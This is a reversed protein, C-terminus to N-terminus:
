QHRWGGPGPNLLRGGCSVEVGGPTVEGIVTFGPLEEAATCVIEYDDGGTALALRATAEDAQSALWGQAEASLPMLDLDISLGVGSAHAIHRADAVLGDSVDAAASADALLTEALNLRPTPLRYRELLWGTADALRGLAVQLGLYGDGITGSVQLLDGVRAGARRVMRGQPVWGLLTLSAVLSGEGRVTDGGLLDVDWRELDDALGAAFATRAAEDFAATWAVALFAGFPEAAKAALDSLNARALKRAILDPAEGKPVHM